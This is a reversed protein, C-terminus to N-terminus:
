GVVVTGKMGPHFECIYAFSGRKNFTVAARKRARINDVGKQGSAFTVTHNSQDRNIWTVRAGRKVEIREPVYKFGQIRM